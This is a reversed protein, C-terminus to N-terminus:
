LVVKPLALARGVCRVLLSSTPQMTVPVLSFLQESLQDLDVEQRLTVSFVPRAADYKRRYFGWDISRQFAERLPQFLAAIALTSLVIVM